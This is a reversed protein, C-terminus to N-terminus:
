CPGAPKNRMVLDVKGQAGSLWVVKTGEDAAYLYAGGRDCTVPVATGGALPKQVAEPHATLLSAPRIQTFATETAQATLAAPFSVPLPLAGM